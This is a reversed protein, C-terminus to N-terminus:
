RGRTGGGHVRKHCPQCLTLGNDVSLRLSPNDRFPKIHHAHLKQTAGCHQCRYGDRSFVLKRWQQYKAHQRARRLAPTIGGKWKHNKEGSHTESMKARTEPTHRKGLMTTARAHRKVAVRFTKKSEVTLPLDGAVGGAVVIPYGHGHGPVRMFRWRGIPDFAVFPVGADYLKEAIGIATYSKGSDRIGLIANGQSAYSQADFAFFKM